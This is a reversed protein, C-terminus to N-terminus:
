LGVVQAEVRYADQDIAGHWFQAVHPISELDESVRKPERRVGREVSNPGKTYFM